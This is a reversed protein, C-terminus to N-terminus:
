IHAILFLVAVSHIHTSSIIIETQERARTLKENIEVRFPVSSSVAAALRLWRLKVKEIFLQFRERNEKKEKKTEIWMIKITIAQFKQQQQAEM